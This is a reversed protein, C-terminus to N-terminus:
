RRAPRAAAPGGRARPGRRRRALLLAYVIGNVGLVIGALAWSMWSPFPVPYLLPLLYHEVFGGGYGAEGGRQRLANELPTLPCTWRFIEIAAGYAACALHPWTVRPWRLALLGGLVVFAVFALHLLAVADALARALVLPRYRPPRTLAALVM